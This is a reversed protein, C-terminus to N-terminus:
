VVSPKFVTNQEHLSPPSSIPFMPPGDLLQRLGRKEVAHLFARIADEPTDRVVWFNLKDHKIEWRRRPEQENGQLILAPSLTSGVPLRNMLEPLPDKVAAAATKTPSTAQTAGM